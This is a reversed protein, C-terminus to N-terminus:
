GPERIRAAATTKARGRAKEGLLRDEDHAVGLLRTIRVLARDWEGRRPRSSGLLEGRNQLICSDRGDVRRVGHPRLRGRLRERGRPLERYRGVIERGNVALGIERRERLLEPALM